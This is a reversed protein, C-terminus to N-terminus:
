VRAVALPNGADGSRHVALVLGWSLGLLLNFSILRFVAFFLAYGAMLVISAIILARVGDGLDASRWALWAPGML